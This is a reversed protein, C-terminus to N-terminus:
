DEYVALLCSITNEFRRLSSSLSRYEDGSIRTILDRILHAPCTARLSHHMCPKRPPSTLSLSWRSAGPLSPFIIHFHNKQSHSPPLSQISSAWPLSLHRAITFATIFMRIGYFAPFKNVLQPCNLKELVRTWPNLLYTLIYTLISVLPMLASTSPLILICPCSSWPTWYLLLSKIIKLYNM